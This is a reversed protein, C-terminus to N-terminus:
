CVFFRLQIRPLEPPFGEIQIKVDALIPSKAWTKPAQSHNSFTEDNVKGESYRNVSLGQPHGVHNPCIMFVCVCGGFVVQHYLCVISFNIFIGAKRMVEITHSQSVFM